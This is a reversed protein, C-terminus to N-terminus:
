FNYFYVAAIKAALNYFITLFNCDIPRLLSAYGVRHRCFARTLRENVRRFQFIAFYCIGLPDFGPSRRPPRARPVGFLFVTRFSATKQAAAARGFVDGSSKM